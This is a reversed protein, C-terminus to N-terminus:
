LKQRINNRKVKLRIRRKGYYDCYDYLIIRVAELKDELRDMRARLKNYKVAEDM